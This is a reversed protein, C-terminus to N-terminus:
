FYAQRQHDNKSIIQLHETKLSSVIVTPSYNVCIAVCLKTFLWVIALTNLWKDM